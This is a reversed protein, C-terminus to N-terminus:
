RYKLLCWVQSANPYALENIADLMESHSSTCNGEITHHHPEFVEGDFNQKLLKVRNITYREIADGVNSNEKIQIKLNTAMNEDMINDNLVNNAIDIISKISNIVDIGNLDNSYQEHLSDLIDMRRIEDINEFIRYLLMDYLRLATYKKAFVATWIWTEVMEITLNTPTSFDFNYRGKQYILEKAIEKEMIQKLRVLSYEDALALVNYLDYRKSDNDTNHTANSSTSSTSAAATSSTNRTNFELPIFKNNEHLGYLFDVMCKFDAITCNECAPIFPYVSNTPIAFSNSTLMLKFRESAVALIIKHCPVEVGQFSLSMDSFLANDRYCAFNKNSKDEDISIYNSNSKDEVPLTPTLEFSLRGHFEVIEALGPDAIEDLDVKADRYNLAQLVTISKDPWLALFNKLPM